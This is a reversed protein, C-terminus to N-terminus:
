PVVAVRLARTDARGLEDIVRVTFDGARVPSWGLTGGPAATGVFSDNVFWYLTRVGGDASAQLPVREEDKAGARLAYAAGRLPSTIVPASGALATGACDGPPPPERRPMGAQRFVRQLDSPWFEYVERRVHPMGADGPCAQRGTRADVLVERHVDSVKIPSVGPVFWTEATNPCHANPLDGSAACVKVRALNPPGRFVPEALGPQVAQVADVIQFFLPAAAQAGVFAPNGSGDFNGVWVALVYPGVLGASWADRFGWSTGTKWAVPLGDRAGAISGEPRPNHRLMDLTIFSAEESLLRAGAAPPDSVRHRLPKLVGRNGLMAYLTVLEEMTVEGGGLTLALGYHRESEMRAVGAGRLFQYFSPGSLKAAVAVAPVNRSRILAERATVPGMFRGDFNEPSFPGFASPADKLVTLPHVFGQDIALAYLFPKLASGPSRKATTGNVQGAIAANNFDASGILAKVEMTRFDVLMAAANRIGVRRERAVYQRVIRELAHQLRSDITAHIESAEGPARDAAVLATVAHPAEFPLSGIGALNLPLAMMAAAEPPAAREARWRTFLRARAVLMEAQDGRELTRKGPAQPIVTLALVEPLALARTDKRLYIRSAATVGEVNGGYPVLNLYAELIEKKSYRAELEVARAIQVLKGSLTRTNIRYVLRALQMTITSGGQAPQGAVYTRFAGRALAGPNFGFHWHFYRDEHLLFADTLAPSIRELPTWLRYKDDAALTLRLLRGDADYVAVSSGFQAALPPRPWLRVAALAVALICVLALLRRALVLRAVATM